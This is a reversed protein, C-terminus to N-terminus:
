RVCGSIGKLATLHKKVADDRIIEAEEGTFGEGCAVCWYVPVQVPILAADDGAGYQITSMEMTKVVGTADCSVCCSEVYQQESGQALDNTM